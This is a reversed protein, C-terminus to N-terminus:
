ILDQVKFAPEEVQSDNAFRAIGSLRFSLAYLFVPASKRAGGGDNQDVM